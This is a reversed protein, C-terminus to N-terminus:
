PTTTAPSNTTIDTEAIRLVEPEEFKSLTLIVDPKDQEFQAIKIPFYNLEPCLWISFSSDDGDVRDMRVAAFEGIDTKIVEIESKVYSYTKRKGKYSILYEFQKKGKILDARLQLVHSMRDFLHTDLPLQWKKKGKNGNEIKNQWDFLQSITRNKKFSIKTKSYFQGTMLTQDQIKFKSYEESKLSLLWKKLNTSISLKWSDNEQYMQRKAMGLKDGESHVQYVANYPELFNWLNKRIGSKIRNHEGAMLENNQPTVNATKKEVNISLPQNSTQTATPSELPQENAAYAPQYLM